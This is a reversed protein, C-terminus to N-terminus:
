NRANKDYVDGRLFDKAATIYEQYRPNSPIHVIQYTDAILAHDIGEQLARIAKKPGIGKVGPINDSTDGVLCKYLVIDYSPIAMNKKKTPDYIAEAFGHQVVQILDKDRSVVIVENDKDHLVEALAHILDDAETKPHRLHPIMREDFIDIAYKTAAPLNSDHNRTSKYTEQQERRWDSGGQSDWVAYYQSFEGHARQLREVMNLFLRRFAIEFSRPGGGPKNAVYMAIMMFNNADIIIHKQKM